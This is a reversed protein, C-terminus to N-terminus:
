EAMTPFKQDARSVLIRDGLFGNMMEMMRGGHFAFQNNEDFRRDQIVCLLEAEGSPLALADEEPDSVLLVGALGQYVQAGTRMHPHPHYWYTGARNTVEFDYVYQHGHGIVLNPHGDAREPVDLGHWHIISDESLQNTFHIRVKQKRRLRITPGLYSGTVVRLSDTPGKLVRGTFRWVRTPEGSLLAIEGPAATLALEVDPVFNSDLSGSQAQCGSAIASLGLVGFLQRRAISKNMLTLGVPMNKKSAM